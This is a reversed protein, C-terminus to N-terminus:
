ICVVVKMKREEGRFVFKVYFNIYYKGEVDEVEYIIVVLLGGGVFIGELVKEVGLNGDDEMNFEEDEKFLKYEVEFMLQGCLKQNVVDNLDM